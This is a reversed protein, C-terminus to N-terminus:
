STPVGTSGQAAPATSESPSALAAARAAAEDTFERFRYRQISGASIREAWGGKTSPEIILRRSEFTFDSPRIVYKLVTGDHLLVELYVWVPLSPVEEIGLRENRARREVAAERYRDREKEYEPNPTPCLHKELYGFSIEGGCAKCVTM